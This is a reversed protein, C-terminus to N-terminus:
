NNCDERNLRVDVGIPNTLGVPIGDKKVLVTLDHVVGEESTAQLVVKDTLHEAKLEGEFDRGYVEIQYSGKTGQFLLGSHGRDDVVQTLPTPEESIALLAPLPLKVTEGSGVCWYENAFSATSLLSGALFVHLSKM